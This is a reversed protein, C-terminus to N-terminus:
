LIGWIETFYKLRGCSIYVNELRLGELIQGFQSKQNSFLGDPLVQELWTEGKRKYPFAFTAEQVRFM